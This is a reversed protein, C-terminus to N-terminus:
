NLVRHVLILPLRLPEAPWCTARLFLSPHLPCNLAFKTTLFRLSRRVISHELSFRKRLRNPFALGPVAVLVYNSGGSLKVWAPFEPCYVLSNLRPHSRIFLGPVFSRIRRPGCDPSCEHILLFTKGLTTEKKHRRCKRLLGVVLFPLTSPSM